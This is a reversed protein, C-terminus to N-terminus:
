IESSVNSASNLRHQELAYMIYGLCKWFEFGKAPKFFFFLHWGGLSHEQKKSIKDTTETHVASGGKRRRDSCLVLTHKADTFTCFVQRNQVIELERQTQWNELFKIRDLLSYLNLSALFGHM